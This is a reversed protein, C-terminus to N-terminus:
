NRPLNDAMVPYVTYAMGQREKQPLGCDLLMSNGDLLYLKDVKYM